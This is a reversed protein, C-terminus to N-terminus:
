SKDCDISYKFEPVPRPRIDRGEPVAQGAHRCWNLIERLFDEARDTISSGLIDPPERSLEESTISSLCNIRNTINIENTSKSSADTYVDRSSEM